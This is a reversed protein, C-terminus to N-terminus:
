RHTICDSHTVALSRLEPIPPPTLGLYLAELSSTTQPLLPLPQGTKLFSVLVRAVFLKMCLASGPTFRLWVAPLGPSAKELTLICPGMAKISLIFIVRNEGSIEPRLTEQWQPNSTLLNASYLRWPQVMPQIIVRACSSDCTNQTCSEKM